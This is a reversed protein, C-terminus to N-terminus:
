AAVKKQKKMEGILALADLPARAKAETDFYIFADRSKRAPARGEIRAADAPEKGATWLSVRKAWSKIQAPPYGKKYAKEQGHMRAYIFNATVDETYPSELGAHAFVFAVGHDRLLRIFKGNELFSEHRIEIAHRLPGRGASQVHSHARMFSSHKKAVRAAATLDYPLGDLFREFRDDKLALNPPFQWLLPGLKERLCFVGSALFNALPEEFEKLRRIHTVYRPAKLAFVFDEPTEEYWRTFSEPKQLSYFTGNVEISNVQRSAFALEERQKLGKPYFGKRWGAFNWGSMGVFIQGAM